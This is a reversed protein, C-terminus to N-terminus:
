FLQLIIIIDIAMQTIVAGGGGGVGSHVKCGEGPPGM